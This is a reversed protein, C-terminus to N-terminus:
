RPREAQDDPRKPFVTVKVPGLVLITAGRETIRFGTGDILGLPGQGSVAQDGEATGANIEIHASETHLEHGEDSHVTVKGALDLTAPVRNYLGEQATLAVWSGGNVFMDATLNKLTIVTADVTSPVAEDATIAYPQSKGDTGIYRANLMKLSGDEQVRASYTVRFGEERGSVLPWVVVLGLLLVAILPLAYRMVSVFASYRGIRAASKGAGGAVLGVLRKVPEREAPRPVADFEESSISM